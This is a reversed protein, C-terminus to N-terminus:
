SGPRTEDSETKPPRIVRCRVLAFVGRAPRMLGRVADFAPHNTRVLIRIAALRKLGDVVKFRGGPLPTV